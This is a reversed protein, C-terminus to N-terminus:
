IDFPPAYRVIGSPPDGGNLALVMLADDPVDISLRIGAASARTFGFRPYYDPHGLVIVWREGVNRAANLVAEIAAYGAGRRQFEPLVACPALALAPTRGVHCRTLLAYGVPRGTNPDISLMSLGDIWARDRRLADVLDAEDGTDFAAENITRVQEIDPLLRGAPAGRRRPGITPPPDTTDTM